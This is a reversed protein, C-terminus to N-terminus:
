KEQEKLEKIKRDKNENDLNLASIKRKSAKFQDDLKELEDKLTQM